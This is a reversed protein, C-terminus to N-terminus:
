TGGVKEYLIDKTVQKMSKQEDRRQITGGGGMTTLLGDEATVDVPRVSNINFVFMSDYM